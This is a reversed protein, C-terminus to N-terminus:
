SLPATFELYVVLLGGPAVSYEGAGTNAVGTSAREHIVMPLFPHQPDIALSSVVLPAGGFASILVNRQRNLGLFGVVQPTMTGIPGETSADGVIEIAVLEQRPANTHFYATCARGGRRRCSRAGSSWATAWSWCSPRM